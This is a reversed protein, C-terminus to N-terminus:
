KKTIKKSCFKLGSSPIIELCRHCCFVDQEEEKEKSELILEKARQLKELYVESSILRVLDNKRM